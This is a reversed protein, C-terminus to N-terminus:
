KRESTKSLTEKLWYYRYGTRGRSGTCRRCFYDGAKVSAFQDVNLMSGSDQTVVELPHRCQPCIRSDTSPSSPPKEDDNDPLEGLDPRYAGTM